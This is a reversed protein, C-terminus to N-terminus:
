EAGQLARLDHKCERGLKFMNHQLANGEVRQTLVLFVFTDLSLNQKSMRTSTRIRPAHEGSM